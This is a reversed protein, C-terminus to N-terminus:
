RDVKPRDQEPEPEAPTVPAIVARKDPPLDSWLGRVKETFVKWSQAEIDDELM